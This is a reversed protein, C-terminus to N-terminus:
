LISDYTTSILNTCFTATCRVQSKYAPKGLLVACQCGLLSFCSNGPEPASHTLTYRSSHTVKRSVVNVTAAPTLGTEEAAMLGEVVHKYSGM